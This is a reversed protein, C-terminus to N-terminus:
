INGFHCSQQESGCKNLSQPTWRCHGWHHCTLSDDATHAQPAASEHRAPWKICFHWSETILCPVNIIRLLHSSIFCLLTNDWQIVWLLYWLWFILIMSSNEYSEHKENTYWVMYLKDSQMEICNTAATIKLESVGLSTFTIQCNHKNIDQASGTFQTEHWHWMICNIILWCQNLYHSPATLCCAMLHTLKSGSRPWLLTNTDSYLDLLKYKPVMWSTLSVGSIVLERVSLLHRCWKPVAYTYTCIHYCLPFYHIWTVTIGSRWRGAM